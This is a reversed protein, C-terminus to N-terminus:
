KSIIIATIVGTAVAALIYRNDVQRWEYGKPPKSLRKHKRYDVAKGRQWDSYAVHGGKRFDSKRHWGRDDRDDHHDNHNQASPRDNGHSPGHQQPAALAASNMLLSGAMLTIVSATMMRKM